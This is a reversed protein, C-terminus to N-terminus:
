ILRSSGSFVGSRPIELWNGASQRFDGADLRGAGSPVRGLLPVGTLRPLDAVNCEEALGPERPWDGIVTGAVPVGAGRLRDVALETDSLTGLAARTVVLAEVEAGRERLRAALDVITLEPGLRVLVGGAGEVLAIDFGDAFGEIRSCLAGSEPPEMYARAAATEPALPEPYRHFEASDAPDTVGALAAAEAVDGDEGPELGTQVPKCLGVRLGRERLVAAVAATVITKGIDTGTGTVVLLRPSPAAHDATM